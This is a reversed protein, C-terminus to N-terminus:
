PNTMSVVVEFRANSEVGNLTQSAWYHTGNILETGTALATGGTSSLYWKIGTGTAQLQAVTPRPTVTVTHSVCGASFESNYYNRAYYTTTTTPSLTVPNGTTLQTGGCSGTYWYVTGVAGNCTLQTGAGTCIPNYTSSISTPNEPTASVTHDNIYNSTSGTMTFDYLTATKGNGSADTLTTIATNNGGPTGEDMKYYAALGAFSSLTVNYNAAIEASTRAVSWIRVEDIGGQWIEGSNRSIQLSGSNSSPASLQSTPQYAGNKYLEYTGSRRVLAIHTWTNLSITTTSSSSGNNILYTITGTGTSIGLGISAGDLCIVWKYGGYSRPNVWAELTFNDTNTMVSSATANDNAGDFDLASQSKASWAVLLSIGILLITKKM